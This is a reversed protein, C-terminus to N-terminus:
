SHSVKLQDLDTQARSTQASTGRTQDHCTSAPTKTHQTADDLGVDCVPQAVRLRGFIAKKMAASRESMLRNRAPAEARQKQTAYDKRLPEDLDWEEAARSLTELVLDGQRKASAREVWMEMSGPQEVAHADQLGAFSRELANLNHIDLNSPGCRFLQDLRHYKRCKRLAIEALDARGKSILIDAYDQEWRSPDNVGQAKFLPSRYFLPAHFVEFKSSTRARSTDAANPNELEESM